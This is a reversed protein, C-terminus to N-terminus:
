IYYQLDSAYRFRFAHKHLFHYLHTPHSINPFCSLYETDAKRRMGFDQPFLIIQPENNFALAVCNFSTRFHLVASFIIVKVAFCNRYYRQWVQTHAPSGQIHTLAELDLLISM